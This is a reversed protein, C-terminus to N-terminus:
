REWLQRKLELQMGRRSGGMPVPPEGRWVRGRGRGRGLNRLGGGRLWTRAWHFTEAAQTKWTLRRAAPQPSEGIGGMNWDSSGLTINRCGSNLEKGGRQGM